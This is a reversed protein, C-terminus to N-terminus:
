LDINSLRKKMAFKKAFSSMLMMLCTSVREEETYEDKKTAAEPMKLQDIQLINLRNNIGIAEETGDGFMLKPLGDKAMGRLGRALMAAAKKIEEMKEDEYSIELLEILRIMSRKEENRM